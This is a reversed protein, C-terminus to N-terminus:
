RFITADFEATTDTRIVTIGLTRRAVPQQYRSGGTSDRVVWERLRDDDIRELRRLEGRAFASRWIPDRGIDARLTEGDLRVLTDAAPPVRLRGLTAWLLPPPPLFRAMLNMGPIRVKDGILIARGGGLGGDLFFDIRASDPAAIRAVGDGRMRVDPDSYTWRFTVSRHGAPLDTDPIRVKSPAGALPPAHPARACGLAFIVALAHLLTARM